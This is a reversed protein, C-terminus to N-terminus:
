MVTPLAAIKVPGLWVEGERIRLPLTVSKRGGQTQAFIDVAGTLLRAEGARIVGGTELAAVLRDLRALRLNLAGELAGAATLNVSGAGEGSVIESDFSLRRIDAVGGAEYWRALWTSATELSIPQPRNVTAVLDVSRLEVPKGAVPGAFTVREASLAIDVADDGSRRRLHVEGGGSMFAAGSAADRGPMARWAPLVVSARAMRGASLEFSSRVMGAEIEALRAASDGTRELRVPAELEAIIHGRDYAQAVLALRAASLRYSAGPATVTVLADICDFELRFPYGGTDERTCALQAGQAAMNGRWAAMADRASSAAALWVYSWLAAAAALLAVPIFVSPPIRRKAM